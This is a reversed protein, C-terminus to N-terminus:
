TLEDLLFETFTCPTGAEATAAPSYDRVALDTHELVFFQWGRPSMFYAAHTGALDDGVLVVGHLLSRFGSFVEAAPVPGAYIMYRGGVSGWGLETLLAVYDLPALPFGTLLRDRESSSLRVLGTADLGLRRKLDDVKL